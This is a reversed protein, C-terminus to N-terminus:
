VTTVGILYLILILGNDMCPDDSLPWQELVETVISPQWTHVIGCLLAKNSPTIGESVPLFLLVHQALWSSTSPVNSNESGRLLKDKVHFLM